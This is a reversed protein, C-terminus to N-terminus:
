GLDALVRQLDEPLGSEFRLREGSTPHDFGLVAAHLFPRGPSLGPAVSVRRRHGPERGSSAGARYRVDGVVPHGIAALHVRIQHTRGTELTCRVLTTPQPTTWRELVEYGTVANRGDTRVAMRTPDSASRGLPADVVGRPEAVAGWVLALYRREVTHAQLQASLATLAAPRRAVMLLGSTGKDLRHVIGPRSVDPWSHDAMDPFRALLGNVLTGDRHGAGPHVVLGAPKDVVVVDADAHVVTVDVAGDPGPGPIREPLDVELETGAVVRQSVKGVVAGALRVGGAEVVAAAESRPLGALFAVVRDAREGDLAAPIEVRM